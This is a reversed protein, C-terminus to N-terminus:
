INSERARHEKLCKVFGDVYKDQMEVDGVVKSVEKAKARVKAGEEGAVVKRVAEAVASRSFFGSDEDREVEVGVGKEAMARANLGQDACVPLLVLARGHQLGEVVSSWGCHTLFAGVADHGLVQVQPAWGTVVLGRPRTREEFGEPLLAAADEAGAPKRLAWLFPVNSLELGLALERLLEATLVAESGLAVYIASGTKQAELFEFIRPHHASLNGDAAQTSPLLGLPVVPRDHLGSLLPFWDPELEPCSRQAVIAAGALGMKLRASEPVGSANPLVSDLFIRLLEHRRFAVATPFPVWRPPGIFDAPNTRGFFAATSAPFTSFFVAPLSASSAAWYAAFDHVVFDAPSCGAVFEAFFPRLSDLSKQLSPPTQPCTPRPPSPPLHPLAVFSLLPTAGAPAPLRRLLAAPALLSVRHGRRALARGLELFPLVHGFAFYPLMVVHLQDREGKLNNGDAASYDM